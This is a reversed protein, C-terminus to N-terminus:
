KTHKTKTGKTFSTRKWPRLVYARKKWKNTKRRQEPLPRPCPRLGRPGWQGLSVQLDTCRHQHHCLRWAPTSWLPYQHMQKNAHQHKRFQKKQRHEANLHEARINSWPWKGTTSISCLYPAVTACWFLIPSPHKCTAAITVNSKQKTVQQTRHQWKKINIGENEKQWKVHWLHPVHM